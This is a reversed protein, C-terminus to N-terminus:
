LLGLALDEESTEKRHLFTEAWYIPWTYIIATFVTNSKAANPMLKLYLVYKFLLINLPQLVQSSWRVAVSITM